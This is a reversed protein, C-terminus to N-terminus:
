IHILSLPKPPLARETSHGQPLSAYDASSTEVPVQPRRHPRDVPKSHSRDVSKSHSREASKPQSSDATSSLGSLLDRVDQVHITTNGDHAVDNNDNSTHPIDSSVSGSDFGDHASASTRRSRSRGSHSGAHSATHQAATHFAAALARSLAATAPNNSQVAPSSRLVQELATALTSHQAAPTDHHVSKRDRRPATPATLGRPLRRKVVTAVRPSEDSLSPSESLVHDTVSRVTRTARSKAPPKPTTSYAASRAHSHEDVAGPAQLLTRASASHAHHREDIMGTTKSLKYGVVSHANRREDNMDSQPPKLVPTSHAYRREDIMASKSSHKGHDSSSGSDQGTYDGSHLAATRDVKAEDRTSSSYTFPDPQSAPLNRRLVSKYSPPSSKVTPRTRARSKSALPFHPLMQSLQSM